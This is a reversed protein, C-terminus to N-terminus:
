SSKELECLQSISHPHPTPLWANHSQAVWVHWALRYSQLTRQLFVLFVVYCTEWYKFSLSFLKYTNIYIQEIWRGQCKYDESHGPLSPKFKTNKCKGSSQAPICKPYDVESMPTYGKPEWEPVTGRPSAKKDVQMVFRQICKQGGKVM